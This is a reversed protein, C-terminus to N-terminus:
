LLPRSLLGTTGSSFLSHTLATIATATSPRMLEFASSNSCKLHQVQPSRAHAGRHDCSRNFRFFPRHFALRAKEFVGLQEAKHRPRMKGAVEIGETAASCRIALSHVDQKQQKVSSPTYDDSLKSRHGVSSGLFSERCVLCTTQM